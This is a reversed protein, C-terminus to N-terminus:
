QKRPPITCPTGYMAVTVSRNQKRMQNRIMGSESVLARQLYSACAGLLLAPYISSFHGKTKGVLIGKMSCPNKVYRLVKRCIASPKVEGGFSTTSRIKITRLFEENEVPNSAV